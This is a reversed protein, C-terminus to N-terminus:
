AGVQLKQNSKIIEEFATLLTTVEALSNYHCLSIRV